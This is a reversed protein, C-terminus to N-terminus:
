RTVYLGVTMVIIIAAVLAMSLVFRKDDATM